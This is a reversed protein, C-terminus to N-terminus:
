RRDSTNSVVVRGEHYLKAFHMFYSERSQWLLSHLRKYYSPQMYGLRKIVRSWYKNYINKFM